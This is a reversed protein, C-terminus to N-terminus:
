AANADVLATLLRTFPPDLADRWATYNHADPVVRFDLPYGLRTLTAAMRRNNALNEEARGCTMATPVPRGTRAARQVAAVFDTVASFGEFRREQPDLTPTFFSGSQLLLADFVTPYSCHAHLMALAGLSVGVGVRMTSPAVDDLAPIVETCLAAAYRPNASYWTNRAGPALLAARLPPLAGGNILAGLYGTFSGLTAFEPGDHVVVLPAPERAALSAPSWLLGSRTAPMRTDISLPTTTHSIQPQGLWVPERYGPFRVVSKDGFAGAVRLPNAPDTITMQQGNHGAIEFLYEMREVPPRSVRLRWTGDRRTFDNGSLEVEPVLRVAELRGMPDALQFTVGAGDVVPAADSRTPVVACVNALSAAVPAPVDAAATV